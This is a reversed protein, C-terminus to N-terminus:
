FQGFLIYRKKNLVKKEMTKLDLSNILPELQENVLDDHMEGVIQLVNTQLFKSKLLFEEAGEIDFKLIDVQDIEEKKCFDELSYVDVAVSKTNQPRAKISSGLHSDGFYLKIKGTQNSVAYKCIKINPFQKTNAELKEYIEGNPEVAFIKASPFILSYFIATDGINAGLDVIIKPDPLYTFSYEQNVFIESLVALDMRNDVFFNFNKNKYKLNLKFMLKGFVKWFIILFALVLFNINLTKSLKLNSAIFNKCRNM